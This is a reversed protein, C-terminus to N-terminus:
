HRRRLRRSRDVFDSRWSTSADSDDAARRKRTTHRRGGQTPQQQTPQQQQQTEQSEQANEKDVVASAVQAAPVAANLEEIDINAILTNMNPSILYERFETTSEIVDRTGAWNPLHAAYYDLATDYQAKMLMFFGEVITLEKIIEIQLNAANTRRNMVRAMKRIRGMFFKNRMAEETGVLEGMRSQKVRADAKLAALIEDPAITLLYKTLIGIKSLLRQKLEESVEILKLLDQNSMAALPQKLPLTLFEGKAKTATALAKDYATENFTGNEMLLAVDGARFVAITCIGTTRTILQDIRYCHSVINMVDYLVNQLKLSAVVMKAMVGAVVLVVGLAGAIPLGVGTASLAGIAVKAGVAALGVGAAIEGSENALELKRAHDAM